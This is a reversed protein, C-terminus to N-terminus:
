DFAKGIGGKGFNQAAEDGLGGSIDNLESPSVAPNKRLQEKRSSAYANNTLRTKGNLNPRCSLFTGQEWGGGDPELEAGM